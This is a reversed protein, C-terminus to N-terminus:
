RVGAVRRNVAYLLRALYTPKGSVLLRSQLAVPCQGRGLHRDGFGLGGDSGTWATDIERPCALVWDGVWSATVM